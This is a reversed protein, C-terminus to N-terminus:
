RNFGSRLWRSGGRYNKCGGTRVSYTYVTTIYGKGLNSYRHNSHRSLTVVLHEFTDGLTIIGEGSEAQSLLSAGAHLVMTSIERRVLAANHKIYPTIYSKQLM